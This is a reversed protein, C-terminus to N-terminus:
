RRGGFGGGRSGGGFGGGRSGGGFSGGSRSGGGFSGGFGGRSGGGTPRGGFTGGGRPGRNGAGGFGSSPRSGGGSGGFGGGHPPRPGPGRPGGPPPPPPPRHWHRHYWHSRPGHWFLIPRFMVPPTGMGYYRTRYTNYRASDIASLVVVLLILVFVVWVIRSVTRASSYDPGYWYSDHYEEANGLQFNEIYVKNLAAFFDATGQSFKEKGYADELLGSLETIVRNTMITAFNNGYNLYYQGDDVAIVLVADGEGLGMDDAQDFSFDEISQGSLNNVTVVAVVSEYRYDWNANYLLISKRTASDLQGAADYLYKEYQTTNLSSDLDGPQKGVTAAPKRVWGIFVSAAIVAILVVIALAYGKKNKM